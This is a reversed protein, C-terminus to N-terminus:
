PRRCRGHDPRRRRQGARADVVLDQRAGARRRGAADVHGPRGVVGAAEFAADGVALIQADRDVHLGDRRQHLRQARDIERRHGLARRGDLAAVDAGNRGGRDDASAMTAKTRASASSSFNPPSEISSSRALQCANVRGSPRGTRALRDRRYRLARLARLTFFRCDASARVVRRRGFRADPMTTGPSAHACQAHLMRQVGQCSRDDAGRDLDM